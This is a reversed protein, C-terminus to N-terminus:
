RCGVDTFKERNGEEDSYPPLWLKVRESNLKNKVLTLIDSEGLQSAM